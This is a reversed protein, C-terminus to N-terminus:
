PNRIASSVITGERNVWFIYSRVYVTPTRYVETAIIHGAGASGGFFRSTGTSENFNLPKGKGVEEYILIRLDGDQVERTANGWNKELTAAPRGVWAEMEEPKVGKDACGVAAVLVLGLVVAFRGARM